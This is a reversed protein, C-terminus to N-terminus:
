AEPLLKGPSAGGKIREGGEEALPNANISINININHRM